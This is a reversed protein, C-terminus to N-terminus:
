SADFQQRHEAYEKVMLENVKRMVHEMGHLKKRDLFKLVPLFDSIFGSGIADVAKTFDAIFETLWPDDYAFRFTVSTFLYGLPDGTPQM